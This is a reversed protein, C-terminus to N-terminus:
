LIQTARRPGITATRITRPHDITPNFPRGKKTTHSRVAVHSSHGSSRTTRSSSTKGKAALGSVCVFALVIFATFRM